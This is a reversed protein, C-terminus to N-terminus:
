LRLGEVAGYKSITTFTSPDVKQLLNRLNTRALNTNVMSQTSVHYVEVLKDFDYLAYTWYLAQQNIDMGSTPVSLTIPGRHLLPRSFEIARQSISATNMLVLCSFASLAGVWYARYNRKRLSQHRFEKFEINSGQALKARMQKLQDPKKVTQKLSGPDIKYETTIM